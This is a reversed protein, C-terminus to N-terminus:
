TKTQALFLKPLQVFNAKNVSALQYLANHSDNCVLIIESFLEDSRM